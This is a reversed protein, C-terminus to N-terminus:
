KLPEVQRRTLILSHLSPEAWLMSSVKAIAEDVAKAFMEVFDMMAVVGMRCGVQNCAVAEKLVSEILGRDRLTNGCPRERLAVAATELMWKRWWKPAFFYLSGNTTDTAYGSQVSSGNLDVRQRCNYCQMATDGLPVDSVSAIWRWDTTALAVAVEQCKVHYQLLHSYELGTIYKLEECNSFPMLPEELTLKATEARFEDLHHTCALAYSAVPDERAVDVCTDMVARSFTNVGWKDHAVCVGELEDITLEPLHADELKHCSHLLYYLTKADENPFDIVPVFQQPAGQSTQELGGTARNSPDTRKPTGVLGHLAESVTIILCSHVRFDIQDSSRFIFDATEHDFPAVNASIPSVTFEGELGEANEM